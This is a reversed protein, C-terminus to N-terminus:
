STFTLKELGAAVTQIAVLDIISFKLSSIKFQFEQVFVRIQEYSNKLLRLSCNVAQSQYFDKNFPLNHNHTVLSKFFGLILFNKKM